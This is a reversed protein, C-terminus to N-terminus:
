LPQDDFKEAASSNAASETEMESEQLGEVFQERMAVAMATFRAMAGEVGRVTWDQWIAQEVPHSLAYM